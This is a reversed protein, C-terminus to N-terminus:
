GRTPAGALLEDLAVFDVPKVLHASCGAERSKIVDSPQGWGTLAVIFMDRGSPNERIRRTAEYGNLKPMGVDMLIIEPLLEGAKLVAEVGDRATWVEHGKHRLLICLTDGSDKNDDVVLIRRRVALTTEASKRAKPSSKAVAVPLRVTFESGKGTGESQANVTGGHMEVLRRALTLGIGLGGQSRELSEDVQRFMDFVYALADCAIGVGNDRVGIIVDRRDLRAEIQIQGGAPTFKAANNLLNSFVQALRAADANLHVPQEPLSIQLRHGAADIGPRSAEVASHIISGLDVKQRRLELKDRTIRSIDLLDDVLRTLQAMQRRIVSTTQGM